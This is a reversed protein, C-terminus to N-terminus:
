SQLQYKIFGEDEKLNRAKNLKYEFYQNFNKTSNSAYKNLIFEMKSRLVKKRINKSKSKKVIRRMVNKFGDFNEKWNFLHYM